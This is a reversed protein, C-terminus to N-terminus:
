GVEKIYAMRLDTAYKELAELYDPHDPNEEERGLREIFQRPPKPRQIKRTFQAALFAPVSKLRLVVGNSLTLTNSTAEM